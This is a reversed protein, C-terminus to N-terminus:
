KTRIESVRSHGLLNNNSKKKFNLYHTKSYLSRRNYTVLIMLKHCDYRDGLNKAGETKMDAQDSVYVHVLSGPALPRSKNKSNMNFSTPSHAFEELSAQRTPSFGDANMGRARPLM